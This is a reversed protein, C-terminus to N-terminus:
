SRSGAIERLLRVVEPWDGRDNASALATSLKTGDFAAPWRGEVAAGLAGSRALVHGISCCPEEGAGHWTRFQGPVLTGAEIEAAVSLCAESLTM